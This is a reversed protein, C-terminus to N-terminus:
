HPFPSLQPIHLKLSPLVSVLSEVWRRKLAEFGARGVGGGECVTGRLRDGVHLKAQNEHDGKQTMYDRLKPNVGIEGCM